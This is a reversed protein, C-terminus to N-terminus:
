SATIYELEQLRRRATALEDEDFLKLWPEQIVTAEMSIDLRGLEWLRTLGESYGKKRLLLKAAQCGRHENVLQIFRRAPYDCEDKAQKCLNILHLHFRNELDQRDNM